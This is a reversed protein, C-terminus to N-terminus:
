ERKFPCCITEFKIDEGPNSECFVVDNMNNLTKCPNLVHLQCLGPNNQKTYCEVKCLSEKTIGTSNQNDAGITSNTVIISGNSAKATKLDCPFFEDKSLKSIGKGSILDNTHSSFIIQVSNVLLLISYYKSM